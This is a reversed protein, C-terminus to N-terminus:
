GLAVAYAIARADVGDLTTGDAAVDRGDVTGSVAINGVVDLKESPVATGIGVRDNGADTYFLFVDNLGQIFCDFDGGDSNAVFNQDCLFTRMELIAIGEVNDSDDIIIGSDQVARAGVAGRVLRHDIIAGVSTVSTAVNVGDVLGDKLEVAEVTVGADTTSEVIDDVYITGEVELDNQVGLDAGSGVTDCLLNHFIGLAQWYTVKVIDDNNVAPGAILMSRSNYTANGVGAKPIAFRIVGGGASETFVFEIQGTVPGGMNRLIVAGNLNLDGVNHSTRGILADGIGIIGYDSVNGARLDYAGLAGTGLGPVLIVGDDGITPTSGQVGRAGSDGRVIAHDAIVASATVANVTSGGGAGSSPVTSRLDENNSQSWAGSTKAQVTYRAILFATGIFDAPLSYVTTAEEDAIAAAENVYVDTPLNIFLKCDAEKASVCGWLVLNMYKNNIGNGSADQTIDDFTTILKYPTTPDNVLWVPDGTQMNRAPMTHPHLQFVVGATTSIYANPSSIVLDSAAVGSDWNAHAARLKENVHSLHGDEDPDNMHNTWAHVKFGGYIALTPATQVFVRAVHCHPGTPWGSTSAILTLVGGSETIYIFNEIPVTDSGATLPVEDAPTCDLIYSEGSFLCTLDGGGLRQLQLKVSGGDEVVDIDITEVIIGDFFREIFAAAFTVGPELYVDQDPMYIVRVNPSTVQSVDIRMQKGATDTDRVLSTGHILPPTLAIVNGSPDRIKLNMWAGPVGRYETMVAEEEAYLIATLGKPVFQPAAHESLYVRRLDHLSRGGPVLIQRSM